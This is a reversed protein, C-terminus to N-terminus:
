KKHAKDSRSLNPKRYLAEIGMERMLSQVRRRGVQFGERRLLALLKRSGYFPCELHLEDIRRMLRLTEEAPAAPRYYVSSRSLELIQCQRTIPLADTADIM